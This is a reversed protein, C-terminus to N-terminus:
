IQLNRFPLIEPYAQFDDVKSLYSGLMDQFEEMGSDEFIIDNM